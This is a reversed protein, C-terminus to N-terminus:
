RMGRVMIVRGTRADMEVAVVNGRPNLVRVDYVWPPGGGMRNEYLEVGVIRGNYRKRVEGRIESLSRITGTRVADQTRDHGMMQQLARRERDNNPYLVSPEREGRSPQRETQQRAPDHPIGSQPPIGRFGPREEPRGGPHEKLREQVPSLREGSPRKSQGDPKMRPRERRQEINVPDRRAREPQAAPRERMRNQFQPRRDPQAGPRTERHRGEFSQSRGESVPSSAHPRQQASAIEPAFSLAAALFAVITAIPSLFPARWSMM